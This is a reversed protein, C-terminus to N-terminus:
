EEAISLAGDDFHCMSQCLTLGNVLEGLDASGGADDCGGIRASGDNVGRRNIFWAHNFGMGVGVIPHTRLGAGRLGVCLDVNGGWHPQDRAGIRIRM